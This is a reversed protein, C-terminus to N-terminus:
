LLVEQRLRNAAIECYREEIEIGIAVYGLDKAARITTGSGMFPDIIVNHPEAVKQMLWKWAALPKPCPHGNKEARETVQIGNGSQGGGARYDKGYYLIPTMQLFGWPGHRAAAPFWFCGMDVWRPYMALCRTGPTVAGRTTNMLLYNIVPVVTRRIYDESDEWAESTAYLGKKDAKADHGTGGLIGYPPDTLFVDSERAIADIVDLANAHYIQSGSKDQYYPQM